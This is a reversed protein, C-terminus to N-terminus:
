GRPQQLMRITHFADDGCRRDVGSPAEDQVSTPWGIPM